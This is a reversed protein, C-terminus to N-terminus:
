GDHENGVRVPDSEPSLMCRMNSLAARIDLFRLKHSPWFWSSESKLGLTVTKSSRQAEMAITVKILHLGQYLCNHDTIEINM